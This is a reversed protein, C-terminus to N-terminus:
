KWEQNLAKSSVILKGLTTLEISMKNKDGRKIAVLGLDVLGKSEKSGQIHYSLLPKGFGSAQELQDLSEVIDGVDDLTRLIKVKAESILESYSLKIVPMPVPRGTKDVGFAMIGNIFAASLAACNLLKDGASVNILVQQFDKGHLNLIENVRDLTDRIVNDLTVVNVTVPIGLTKEVKRSFKDADHKDSDFCILALEHIPFNTIGSSIGGQQSKGFTAIQLTTTM